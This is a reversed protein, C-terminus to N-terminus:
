RRLMVGAVRVEDGGNGDGDGGGDDGSDGGREGGGEDGSLRAARV